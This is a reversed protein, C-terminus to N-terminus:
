MPWSLLQHIFYQREPLSRVGPLFSAWSGVTRGGPGVPMGRTVGNPLPFGGLVDLPLVAGLVAGTEGLVGVTPELPVDILPDPAVDVLPDLLM